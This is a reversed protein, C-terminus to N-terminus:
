SGRAARLAAIRDVPSVNSLEDYRRTGGAQAAKGPQAAHWLHVFPLYGFDFVRHTQAREWFENDEGGWGVFSEDFGGIEFFAERGAAVSAGQLNQVITTQRSAELPAGAFIRATDSESLYFTFRKLDIFEAGAEFRRLIEAAYAVPALMDNDHFVLVRGRAIEAGANLAWSRSFPMDPRPLPTHRYRVWPPLHAEADRVESQEVVIAEVRAGEQAAITRLSALLHPLRASGRHGLIFSVDVAGPATFTDAFRIPRDALATRLLRGGTSPFVKAIHLDSTWQWDCRVGEGDPSWVIRENRNRMTVWRGRRCTRVFRPVNYVVAGLQTRLTM